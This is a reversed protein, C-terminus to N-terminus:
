YPYTGTGAIAMALIFVIGAVIFTLVEKIIKIRKNIRKERQLQSWTIPQIM